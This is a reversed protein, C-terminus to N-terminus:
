RLLTPSRERRHGVDGQVIVSVPAFPNTALRELLPRPITPAANAPGAALLTLAAIAITLRGGLRM